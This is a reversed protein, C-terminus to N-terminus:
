RSRKAQGPSRRGRRAEKTVWSRGKKPTAWQPRNPKIDLPMGDLAREWDKDRMKSELARLMNFTLRMQFVYRICDIFDDNAKVATQKDGKTGQQRSTAWREWVYNQFNQKVETCCDMVVLGPRHWNSRVRLAERIANIGADKNRKYADVCTIGYAAFQEAVTEGSTREQENASTDIIRMAVYEARSGDIPDWGELMKIQEAVDHVTRLSNDFLTRYVFVINDPSLAAWLVAIPKRPHPDIVCVRPWNDPVEFAPIWFPPSPRWEHFVLGALHLPLGLERAIREDDPLSELLSEIARRTLVGGNEICNDWISFYFVRIRGDQENARGVLVDNIWPEALPTMTLWCTGEHDVLGRKIGTFKRQPPPEDFWAWHGSPGEFARDDQDYSLIHIISGNKFEYRVPVGRQNCQPKSALAGAPLWEMLKPHITQVVNVEFNECIIRGVNPVPIPDGNALRVYYDPHGKKLWPRYGLSHSIAEVAGCTTKGSRNGGFVVRVEATDASHFEGQHGRPQYYRIKNAEVKAKLARIKLLLERANNFNELNNTPKKPEVLSM